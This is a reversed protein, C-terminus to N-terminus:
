HATEQTQKLILNKQFIHATVNTYITLKFVTSQSALVILGPPTMRGTQFGRPTEQAKLDPASRVAVTVSSGAAVHTQKSQASRPLVTQSNGARPNLAIFCVVAKSSSTFLQPM